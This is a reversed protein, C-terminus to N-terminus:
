VFWVQFFKREELMTRMPVLKDGEDKWENAVVVAVRNVMVKARALEDASM